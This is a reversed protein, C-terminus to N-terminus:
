DPGGVTLCKCQSLSNWEHRVTVLFPKKKQPPPPRDEAKTLGSPFSSPCSRQLISTLLGSLPHVLVATGALKLM